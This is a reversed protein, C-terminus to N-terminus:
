MLFITVFMVLWVVDVFHWFFTISRVGFWNHASYIGLFARRMVFALGLLGCVIHVAHLLTFAYVIGGYQGSSLHVGLESLRSWLLYQLELFALGLVITLGTLKKFREVDNLQLARLGLQMTASSAVIVASSIAPLALPLKPMGAPPWVDSNARVAAYVFFLGAFMMAWSALAVVIGVYSNADEKAHPRLTAVAAM